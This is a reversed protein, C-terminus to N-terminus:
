GAWTQAPVPTATHSSPPKHFQHPGPKHLTPTDPYHPQHQANLAKFANDAKDAKDAKYGSMSLIYNSIARPFGIYGCSM